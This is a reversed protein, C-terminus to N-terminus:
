MVVESDESIREGIDNVRDGVDRMKLYKLTADLAVGPATADNQATGLPAQDPALRYYLEEGPYFHNLKAKIDDEIGTELNRLKQKVGRDSISGFTSNRALSPNPSNQDQQNSQFHVFQSANKPSATNSQTPSPSSSIPSSSRTSTNTSINKGWSFRKAIHHVDCKSPLGPGINVIVSIPVNTGFIGWMEDLALKTINHPKPFRNDNFRTTGSKSMKEKWPPSFFKASGTVGFARAITFQDPNKPGERLKEPMKALKPINYTRFLGYDDGDSRLAAVFVYRTRVNSRATDFLFQGTRYEETLYEVQEVLSDPNFYCHQFARMRMEESRSRPAICRIIKYWESLCTTIDMHFRGLLIALWGGAGIGAITDFVDCPRPKRHPAENKEAISTLLKDLIVLTSIAQLGGGNLTLIKLPKAPSM